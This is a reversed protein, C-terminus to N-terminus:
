PEKKPPAGLRAEVKYYLYSAGLMLLGLVVFSLIRYLRQLWSMDVLMLKTATVAFLGLAALRLERIRRWFGIALLAVAYVGWVLSLVMLAAWRAVQRSWAVQQAYRYAELSLLALLALLGVAVLARGLFQEDQPLEKRRRELLFGSGFTVLAAVLGAVFRGNAMPWYGHPLPVSGGAYWRASLVLATLLPLLAMLRSAKSRFRVGAGTYALAGLAWTWVMAVRALVRGSPSGPFPEANLWFVLEHHVHFLMLLGAALILGQGVHQEEVPLEKRLVLFLFGCGFAALVAVLGAVFRGNAVPWYQSPLPVGEWGYWRAAFVIATVLPVFGTLRALRNRLGAGAGVYILAGVAWVCVLAAQALIRVRPSGLPPEAGIWLALENHILWLALLGAACATFVKFAVDAPSSQRRWWQHVLALAAGALPICLATAFPRNRFLLFAGEHLPWHLLLFRGLAATLVLLGAVRMPEYRYVYGLFVLAVAEASWVLTVGYVGFRLPAAVTLYTVALTLFGLVGRADAPIRWRALVGLVLYSAGMGLAVLSLEPRHKAYLMWCGFAFVVTANVMAVLFRDVTLVSRQRLEHLFPLCLFIVYFAGLWLLAPVLAAESYFRNYWGAYLVYTGAFAILELVRWKRWFAVALVGLDLVVLYSFLADRADEGTSVLVPTLLGGLVALCALAASDQAVGLAMGGATVLVMLGFAVPQGVLHYLSFAAFLSVYLIALGGGMLGQGFGRMKRRVFYGGLALLVLGCLLGLVVRAEPGLWRNDIAYKVFFGVGFFLILVGVWNLWREGVRKEFEVWWERGLGGLPPTRKEAVRQVVPAVPAEGPVAPPVLPPRGVPIASPCPALMEPAIEVPEPEQEPAAAAPVEPEPPKAVLAEGSRLREELWDLRKALARLRGALGALENVLKRVQVFAIIGLLNGVLITVVAALLVLGLEDM